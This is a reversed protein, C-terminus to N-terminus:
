KRRKRKNRRNNKKLEKYWESRTSFDRFKWPPIYESIRTRYSEPLTVIADKTPTVVIFINPRLNIRRVPEDFIYSM